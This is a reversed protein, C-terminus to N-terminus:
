FRLEEKREEDFKTMVDSISLQFRKKFQLYNENRFKIIAKHHLTNQIEVETSIENEEVNSKVSQAPSEPRGGKAGKKPSSPPRKGMKSSGPRSLKTDVEKDEGEQGDLSSYATGFQKEFDIKFVPAGLGPFKRTARKSMDENRDMAILHKINKHKKEVIEDGPLMIFQEKYIVGDFLKILARTSNLYATFFETSLGQEIELLNMQTEDIM